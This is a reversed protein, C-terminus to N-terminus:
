TRCSLAQLEALVVIAMLVAAPAMLSQAPARNGAKAALVLAGLLHTAVPSLMRTATNARRVGPLQAPGDAGEVGGVQRHGALSCHERAGCCGNGQDAGLGDKSDGLAQEIHGQRRSRGLILDSHAQQGSHEGLHAGQHQMHWHLCTIAQGRAALGGGGVRVHCTAPIHASNDKSLSQTAKVAPLWDSRLETALM